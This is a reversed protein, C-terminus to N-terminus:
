VADDSDELPGGYHPVEMEGEPTSVTAAHVAFQEVALSAEPTEAVLRLSIHASRRGSRAPAKADNQALFLAQAYQQETVKEVVVRYPGVRSEPPRNKGPEPAAAAAGAALVLLAALGIRSRHVWMMNQNRGM